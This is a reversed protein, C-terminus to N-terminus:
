RVQPGERQRQRRSRHGQGMGSRGQRNRCPVHAGMRPYGHARPHRDRQPRRTHRVSPCPAAARHREAPLQPRRPNAGEAPLHRVMRGVSLGSAAPSRRRRVAEPGVRTRHGVLEKDQHRVVLHTRQRPPGARFKLAMDFRGGVKAYDNFVAQEIAVPEPKNEVFWTSIETIYPGLQEDEAATLTPRNEGVLWHEIVEHLKTGRETARLPGKEASAEFRANKVRQFAADPDTTAMHALSGMNEIVWKATAEGDLKELVPNALVKSAVTSASVFVEDNPAKRGNWEGAGIPQKM